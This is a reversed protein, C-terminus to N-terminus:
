MHVVLRPKGAAEWAEGVSSLPVSRTAIRLNASETIGFVNAIAALLKEIPVSKLGSGM